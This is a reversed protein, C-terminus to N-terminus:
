QSFTIPEAIKQSTKKHKEIYKMIETMDEDPFERQLAYFIKISEEQYGMWFLSSALGYKYRFRLRELEVNELTTSKSLEELARIFYGHAENYKAQRLLCQGVMYEVDGNKSEHSIRHYDEEAKGFEELRYHCEARMRYLHCLIGEFESIVKDLEVIAGSYDGAAMKEKALKSAIYHPDTEAKKIAKSERDGDGHCAISNVLAFVIIIYFCHKM